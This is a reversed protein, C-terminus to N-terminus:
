QSSELAKCRSGAEALHGMQRCPSLNWRESSLFCSFAAPFFFVLLMLDIRPITLM